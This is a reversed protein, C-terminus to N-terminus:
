RRSNFQAGLAGGLAALVTCTIFVFLMMTLLFAVLGGTSSLLKVADALAPNTAAQQEVQRLFVDRVSGGSLVVGLTTEVLFLLFAFVGTTWGIRAGLRTTLPLSPPANRRYLFVTVVGGLVLAFAVAPTGVFPVALSMILFSVLAGSISARNSRRQQLVAIVAEDTPMAPPPLAGAAPAFTQEAERQILDERQPQGCRHCFLAGEVLTTGCSCREAV